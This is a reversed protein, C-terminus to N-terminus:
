LAKIVKKARKRITDCDNELFENAIRLIEDRASSSLGKLYILSDRFTQNDMQHQFFLNQLIWTQRLKQFKWNKKDNLFLNLYEKVKLSSKDMAKLDGVEQVAKNENTPNLKQHPVADTSATAIEDVQGPQTKLKLFEKEGEIRRKKLNEKRAQKDRKTKKETKHLDLGNSYSVENIEGNPDFSFKPM